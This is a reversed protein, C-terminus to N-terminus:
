ATMSIGDQLVSLRFTFFTTIQSLHTNAAFLLLPMFLRFVWLMCQTSYVLADKGVAYFSNNIFVSLRFSISLVYQCLKNLYKQVKVSVCSLHHVFASISVPFGPAVTARSRGAAEPNGCHTTDIPAASKLGTLRICISSQSIVGLESFPLCLKCGIQM